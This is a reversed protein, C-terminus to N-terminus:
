FEPYMPPSPDGSSSYVIAGISSSCFLALFIILIVIGIMLATNSKPKQKEVTSIETTAQPTTTTPPNYTTPATPLDQIKPVEVSSKCENLQNINSSTLTSGIVNTMNSCCTVPPVTVYPPNPPRVPQTETFPVPRASGYYEPMDAKVKEPTRQCLGKGLGLSCSGEQGTHEWGQGVDNICWDNHKGASTENWGVCNNWSRKESALNIRQTEFRSYAGTRQTWNYLNDDYEKKKRNWERDQNEYQPIKNNIYDEKLYQNSDLSAIAKDALEKCSRSNDTM